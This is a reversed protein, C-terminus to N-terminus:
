NWKAMNKFSAASITTSSVRVTNGGFQLNTFRKPGSQENLLGEMEDWTTAETEPEQYIIAGLHAEREEASIETCHIYHSGWDDSHCQRSCYKASKCRHCPCLISADEVFTTCSATPCPYRNTQDIERANEKEALAKNEEYLVQMNPPLSSPTTATMVM